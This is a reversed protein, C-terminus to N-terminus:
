KWNFSQPRGSEEWSVENAINIEQLLESLAIDQEPSLALLRSLIDRLQELGEPGCDMIEVLNAIDDAKGIGTM